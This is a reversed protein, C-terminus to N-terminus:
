VIRAPLDLRLVGDAVLDVQRPRLGQHIPLELVHRRLFAADSGERAAEPDGDNWFEIADVGRDALARAAAAKDPVLIPFFLPCVGDPLDSLLVPVRGALRDRLRLFNERRTRVVAAADVTRLIRASLASMSVDVGALDFGTDGTPWRRIGLRTLARGAESKARALPRGLTDSHGRAWDILLDATRAATTAIGCAVAAEAPWPGGGRGVLISGNPVPLTKYLCFVGWDGFAGLPRGHRRSFLALACDEVVVADHERALSVITEIEQPWGLYHVVLVAGAGARLLGRLVDLDASLRRDIPYFRVRAGAARLARVENGHHYDPVLVARRGLDLSRFLHHLANRARYYRRQRPAGLPFPPPSVARGLLEAPSLGPWAPAAIM